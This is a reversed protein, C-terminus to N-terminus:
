LIPNTFSDKTCDPLSSANTKSVVLEEESPDSTKSTTLDAPDELSVTEALPKNVERPACIDTPEPVVSQSNFCAPDFKSISRRTICDEDGERIFECPM